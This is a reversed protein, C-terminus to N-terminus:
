DHEGSAELVQRLQAIFPRTPFATIPDGESNYAIFCLSSDDAWEGVSITFDEGGIEISRAERHDVRLRRAEIAEILDDPTPPSAYEYTHNTGVGPIKQYPVLKLQLTM